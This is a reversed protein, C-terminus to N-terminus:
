YGFFSTIKNVVSKKKKSKPKSKSKQKSKSISKPKPKSIQKKSVIKRRPENHELISFINYKKIKIEDGKGFKDSLVIDNSIIGKVDGNKYVNLVHIWFLEAKPPNISYCVKVFYGPKINMLSEENPISLRLKNEEKFKNADLLPVRKIKM